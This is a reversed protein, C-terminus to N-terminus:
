DYASSIKWTFNDRTDKFDHLLEIVKRFFIAIVNGHLDCPRRHNLGKIGRMINKAIM